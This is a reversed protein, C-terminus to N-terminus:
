MIVNRRQRSFYFLNNVMIINRKHQIVVDITAATKMGWQTKLGSDAEIKAMMM